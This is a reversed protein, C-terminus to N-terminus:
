AMRLVPQDYEVPSGSELLLEAVIGDEECLVENMLKMSEIIMLVDGKKVQQGVTVFPPSDPAPASYYTGVLPARVFKGAPEAAPEQATNQAVVVQQVPASAQAQVPGAACRGKLKMRFADTELELSAVAHQEMMRMVDELQALTLMGDQEKEGM